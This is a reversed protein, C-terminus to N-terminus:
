WPRSLAVIVAIAGLVGLAIWWWSRGQWATARGPEDLIYFGCQPCQQSEIHIQQGCEPCDIM